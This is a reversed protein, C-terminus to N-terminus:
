FFFYLSATLESYGLDLTYDGDFGTTDSNIFRVTGGAPQEATLSSFKTAQSLSFKDVTASYMAYKVCLGIWKSFEINTGAYYYLGSATGTSKVPHTPLGSGSLQNFNQELNVDFSVFGLGLIPKIKGRRNFKLYIDSGYGSWDVESTTSGVDGAPQSIM